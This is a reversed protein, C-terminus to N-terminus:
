RSARASSRQATRIAEATIIGRGRARTTSRASARPTEMEGKGKKYVNKLIDQMVPIPARLNFRGRYVGEGRRRRPDDEEGGSWLCWRDQRAPFWRAAAKLATPNM